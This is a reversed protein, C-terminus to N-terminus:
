EPPPRNASKLANKPLIIRLALRYRCKLCSSEIPIEEVPEPPEPIVVGLYDGCKPCSRYLYKAM